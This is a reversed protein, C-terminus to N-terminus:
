LRTPLAKVNKIEISREVVTNIKNPLGPVTTESIVMEHLTAKQIWGSSIDKFIDGWYHSSGKSTIETTPTPKMLMYYSSEGSDYELIACTNENEISLGKFKLTVEGNKFYSGEAVQSGLNIPAQSNAAAHIIKDGIFKLDQAGKGGASPESFLIMAHFDIFANYVHYTNGVPVPNGNADTLTEFKSHDIGFVYGRDDKANPTLSFNYHWNALSPISVEPKKNIQVTFRLCTYEDGK